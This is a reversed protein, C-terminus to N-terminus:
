IRSQHILPETEIISFHGIIGLVRELLALENFIICKRAIENFGTNELDTAHSDLDQIDSRLILYQKSTMPIVKSLILNAQYLPDLLDDAGKAIKIFSLPDSQIQLKEVAFNIADLNRTSLAYKLIETNFAPSKLQSSIALLQDFDCTDVYQKASDFLEDKSIEMSACRFLLQIIFVLWIIM